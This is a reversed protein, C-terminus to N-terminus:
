VWLKGGLSEVDEEDKELAIQVGRQGVRIIVGDVATKEVRSKEQKRENGKQQEGLRVIDGVKIGNEGIAGSNGIAHDQELELIIKGGFGTRESTIVLNLIALGARALTTPSASALLSATSATEAALENFLLHLQTSTFAQVDVAMPIMIYISSVDLYAHVM